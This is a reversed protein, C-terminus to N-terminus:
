NLELFISNINTSTAELNNGDPLRCPIISGQLFLHCDSSAGPNVAESSFDPPLCLWSLKCRFKVTEPNRFLFPNRSKQYDKCCGPFVGHHYHHVGSFSRVLGTVPCGYSCDIDNRIWAWSGLIFPFLYFSSRGQDETSSGMNEVFRGGSLISSM